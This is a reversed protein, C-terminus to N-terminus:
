ILAIAKIDRIVPVQCSNRTRLVIKLQFQRFDPLDGDIGGLLYRYESYSLEGPGQVYLNKPPDNEPVVREWAVTYIDEDDGTTTRYYVDFDAEPPVHMKAIVRLGNGAEPLIIPKTIHKSPTTGSLAHTEPLFDQPANRITNAGGSDWAQNDVIYNLMNAGVGQIDIMPSLDSVYGTAKYSQAKPGGFNSVQSTQMKTTVVISPEGNLASPSLQQDSNALYRPNDFYITEFPTLTFMGNGNTGPTSQDDIDFRTDQTPTSLGVKGHSFGSVFSGQYQISTGTFQVDSINWTFRDINCASLSSVSDAGFKGNSTFTSGDNIAVYYGNVDPDVVVNASDMISGGTVGNYTAASDLGSLMVKDGDLLNHYKHEVRFRNSDDSDVSMSTAYNHNVRFDPQNYFNVFGQNKFKATHIRYALDQNQKPTWTSGNQSLFLSGTAPQKSVRKDTKGIVLDYTTAVFAEYGDCDSLLVIAYEKGAQIYIPEEFEFTVPNALIDDLTSEDPDTVNPIAAIVNRVDEASKYVCHQESIPSRDPTGNTVDRIQLQLQVQPESAAPARRMFVDVKTIFAGSTMSSAVLSFTQALPDYPVWVVESSESLTESEITEAVRDIYDETRVVRTSVIDKRRTVSRGAARYRTKARSLADENIGSSIDLLKVERSGIRFKWGAYDYVAPDGAGFRAVGEKVKKLWTELEEEFPFVESEPVPITATNPIFLDFYLNGKSDSILVNENSVGLSNPHQKMWTAVPAYQKDQVGEALLTTYSGETRTLVWQDMRVGDFYLWFRTDPRLGEAKGLVRRARIFPVTSVDIIKDEEFTEIQDSVVRTRVRETIRQTLRRTTTTREVEREVRGAENIRRGGLDRTTTRTSVFTATWTRPVYASLDNLKIYITENTINRDPLRTNDVWFDASPRLKLNGEGAFVNFPNVNYYGREEYSYPTMWSIVEQSLASDLVEQYDLMLMDGKRVVDALAPITTTGRAGSYADGSDYIFDNWFKTHKPQIEGKLTDLTQTIWSEDDIFNPGVEASALALGYSFDDVFFGTKSRIQGASNQEILNQAEQEIFSLAVTEELRGVRNRLRDIDRMTYRPYRNTSVMLDRVSKTNGNLMVNFLRMTSEDPAPIGPVLEEDGRKVYLIPRFSTRDYALNIGDIRKNYFQVGFSITDGDRPMENYDSASINDTLPDLKPRLDFYQHLPYPEGDLKSIFTPIDGYDFEPFQTTASASDTFLYSNPSFYGDNRTWTFYGIKALVSDTTGSVGRNPTLSVPGYFNDRQGGDFVVNNTIVSGDSDSDYAHLLRVGDYLGSMATGDAKSTILFRDGVSDNVRNLKFWGETYKKTDPTLGNTKLGKQVYYYVKYNHGNVPNPPTITATGSGITVDGAGIIPASDTNTNIFTWQGDDVFDEDSACTLSLTGSSVAVADYRQVTMRVDSVSKVRHNSIEFLSTNTEPGVIFASGDEMQFQVTESSTTGKEHMSEVDRFNKGADMQIDMLHIRYQTDIGKVDNGTKGNDVTTWDNNLVSKVRATGIKTGSANLLNQKKLLNLNSPNWDGLFSNSASDNGKVGLYNKFTVGTSTGSDSTTTIPKEVYLINDLEQELRYGDLYALPHEGQDNVSSLYYRMRKADGNSDDWEDVELAFKNVIFDGLSESHRIAARKEVQNFSDTGSKIQVIKSERVTAFEVFDLPDTVQNRTTLLLQIRYRDAGPSSLNPRAGQNDYLAEDDLVTLIDQVVEFGVEANAVASHKSIALQQKPAIVFHGQTFFDATQMTFICGRGTSSPEGAATDQKHVRLDSLGPSTLTEEEIFALPTTINDTNAAGSSSQSVYRGYLVPLDDGSAVEVHNCQFILGTTKGGQTSSGTITAGIYDEPDDYLEDVIVYSRIDTGAGSGKPSVAAGDQFINAAFKKIQNQLITQLQTLERAQLPRGSNFLIRHYGASDVFDDKYVNKFTNETFPNPM